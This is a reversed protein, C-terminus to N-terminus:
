LAGVAASLAAVYGQSRADLQPGCAFRLTRHIAGATLEAGAMQAAAQAWGALWEASNSQNLM